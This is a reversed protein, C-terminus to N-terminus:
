HIRYVFIWFFFDICLSKSCPSYNKKRIRNVHIRNCCWYIFFVFNPDFFINNNLFQRKKKIPLRADMRRKKHAVKQTLWSLTKFTNVKKSLLFLSLIVPVFKLWFFTKTKMNELYMRTIIGCNSTLYAEGYDFRFLLSKM